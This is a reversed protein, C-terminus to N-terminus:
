RRYRWKVVGVPSGAPTQATGAQAGTTTTTTTTTKREDTKRMHAKRWKRLARRYARETFAGPPIIKPGATTKTGAQTTNAQTAPQPATRAAAGTQPTASSKTIPKTAKSAAPTQAATPSASTLGRRGGRNYYTSQLVVRTKKGSATISDETYSSLPALYDVGQVPTTHSVQAGKPPTTQSAQATSQASKTLLRVKKRETKKMGGEKAPGGTNTSQAMRALIAGEGEGVKQLEEENKSEDEEDEEDSAPWTTPTHWWESDPHWWDGFGLRTRLFQIDHNRLGSDQTLATPSDLISRVTLSGPGTFVDSLVVMKILCTRPNMYDPGARLPRPIGDTIIEAALMPDSVLQVASHRVGIEEPGTSEMTSLEFAFPPALTNPEGVLPSDYQLFLNRKTYNKIAHYFVFGDRAIDNALRTKTGLINQDTMYEYGGDSIMPTLIHRRIKSPLRPTDLFGGPARAEDAFGHTRVAKNAMIVLISMWLYRRIMAERHGALPSHWYEQAFPSWLVMRDRIGQPLLDWPRPGLEIAVRAVDAITAKLRNYKEIIFETHHPTLNIYPVPKWTAGVTVKSIPGAM